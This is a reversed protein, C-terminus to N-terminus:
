AVRRVNAIERDDISRVADAPLTVVAVTKGSFTAFEVTYGNGEDHVMVVTGVDGPELRHEAVPRTLAVLDLDKIM